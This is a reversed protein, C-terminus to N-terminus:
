LNIPEKETNNNINNKKELNKDKDLNDELISGSGNKQQASEGEMIINEGNEGYIKSSLFAKANYWLNYYFSSTIRKDELCKIENKSVQLVTFLVNELIKTEFENGIAIAELYKLLVNKLYEKSIRKYVDFNKFNNKDIGVSAPQINPLNPIKKEQLINNNSSNDNNNYKVLLQSLEKKVKEYEKFVKKYNNENSLLVKHSKEKYDNFEKKLKNIETKYEELENKLKEYEEETYIVNDTQSGMNLSDIKVVLKPNEIGNKDENNININNKKNDTDNDYDLNLNYLNLDEGDDNNLLSKAKLEANELELNKLQQIQETKEDLIKMLFTKESTLNELNDKLEKNEEIMKTLQESSNTNAKKYDDYEQTIQSYNLNLEKNKMSLENIESKLKTLINNYESQNKSEAILWLKSLESKDYTGYEKKLVQSIMDKPFINSIFDEINAKDNIINKLDTNVKVFKEELKELRKKNIKLEKNQDKMLQIVKQTDTFDIQTNNNNNNQTNSIPKNPEM